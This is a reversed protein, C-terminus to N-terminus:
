RTGILRRPLCPQYIFSMDTARVRFRLQSPGFGAIGFQAIFFVPHDIVRV